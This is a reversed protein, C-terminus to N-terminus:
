CLEYNNRSDETRKKLLLKRLKSRQKIAKSLTKKMFSSNNRRVYKKEAPM